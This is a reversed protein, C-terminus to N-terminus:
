IRQRHQVLRLVTWQTPIQAEFHNNSVLIVSQTGDALHPGLVIGALDQTPLNLDAWDLLPQKLIPALGQAPQPLTRLRATDAAIGTALQYLTAHVRPAFSDGEMASKSRELSLFHGAGDVPLIDSLYSGSHNLPYLYEAVLIPEPEGIWYHLFRSYRPSTDTDQLLPGKTATYLRDGDASIAVPGLGNNPFVGLAVTGDDQVSWYQKPLPLDQQWQGSDRQFESLRPAIKEDANGGSTVFVTDQRTLAIGEHATLMPTAETLPTVTELTVRAEPNPVAPNFAFTYFRPQTADNALAYLRDRKRDYTLASFGGVTTGNFETQPLAFTDVFELSLNLFLRSEASVQPLSCGSLLLALCLGLTWLIKGIGARQLRNQRTQLLM